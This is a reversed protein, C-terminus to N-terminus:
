VYRSKLKTYAENIRQMKETCGGKDPHHIMSLKRYQSKVMDLTINSEPVDIELEKLYNQNVNISQSPIFMDKFLRSILEYAEFFLRFYISRSKRTGFPATKKDLAYGSMELFFIGLSHSIAVNGSGLNLSPNRGNRVFSYAHDFLYCIDKYNSMSYGSLIM